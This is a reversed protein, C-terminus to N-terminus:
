QLALLSGMMLPLASLCSLPQRCFPLVSSQLAMPVCAFQRSRRLCSCTLFWSVRRKTSRSQWSARRHWSWELPARGKRRPRTRTCPCCMLVSTQLAPVLAAAAAQMSAQLEPQDMIHVIMPLVFAATKGSGTKAIGQLLLCRLVAHHTPIFVPSAASRGM